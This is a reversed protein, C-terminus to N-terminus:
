MGSPITLKRASSPHDGPVSSSNNVIALEDIPEREFPDAAAVRDEVGFLQVPEVM